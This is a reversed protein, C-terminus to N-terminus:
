KFTDSWLNNSWDFMDKFNERNWGGAEALSGPVVKMQGTTEDYAFVVTLWSSENSTIPSYCASNTTVARIRSLDDIPEGNLTRVIADACVKAQANAM